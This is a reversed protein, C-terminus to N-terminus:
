IEDELKWSISDSNKLKYNSIGTEAKKGNVYYIWYKGSGSKVGSISEVLFGLGSFEKFVFDIKGERDLDVLLDYVTSNEPIEKSFKEQNVFVTVQLNTSNLSEKQVQEKKVEITKQVLVEKRSEQEPIDKPVVIEEKHYQTKEKEYNFVFVSGILIVSIFVVSINKKNLM